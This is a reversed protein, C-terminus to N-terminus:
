RARIVVASMLKDAFTQNKADWIPWLFGIFCCLADLVHLFRRGIATGTGLLGGDAERLVRTGVVKKGPSQGTNSEMVALLVLAAISVVNSLQAAPTLLLLAAPVTCILWDILYGAARRGWSALLPPSMPGPQGSHGTHYDYAPDLNPQYGSATGM